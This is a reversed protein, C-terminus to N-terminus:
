TVISPASLRGVRPTGSRPMAERKHDPRRRRRVARQRTPVSVHGGWTAAVRACREARTRDNQERIRRAVRALAAADLRGRRGGPHAAARRGTRRRRRLRQQICAVRVRFAGALQRRSAAGAACAQAIKAWVDASDAQM